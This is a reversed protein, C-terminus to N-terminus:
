QSFSMNLFVQYVHNGSPLAKDQRPRIKIQYKDTATDYSVQGHIPMFYDGNSDILFGTCVPSNEIYGCTLTNKLTITIWNAVGLTTIGSLRFALMPLQSGSNININDNDLTMYMSSTVLTIAAGDGTISITDFLNSDILSYHNQCVNSVIANCLRWALWLVGSSNPHCRDSELYFSNCLVSNSNLIYDFGYISADNFAQLANTRRNAMDAPKMTLGCAFIHYRAIPFHQKVYSAFEQLATMNSSYSHGADNAGCQVYIDTITEPHSVELTQLLHLFTYDSQLHAFCAGGVNSFYADNDSFGLYGKVLQFYNYGGTTVRNGYSDGLVIIRKGRNGLSQILQMYLQATETISNEAETAHETIEAKEEETHEDLQAIGNEIATNIGTYNEQFQKVVKIIWDQNLDHFNSYPNVEGTGFPWWPYM